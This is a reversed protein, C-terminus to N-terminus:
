QDEVAKVFRAPLWIRERCFDIWPAKDTQEWELALAEGIRPGGLWGCSIFTRMAADPAKDLLKEFSEARVPQAEKQAGPRRPVKPV